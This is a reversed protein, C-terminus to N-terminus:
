TSSESRFTCVDSVLESVWQNPLLKKTLSLRFCYKSAQGPHSLRLHAWTAPEARFCRCVSTACSFM